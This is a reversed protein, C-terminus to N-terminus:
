DRRAAIYLLALYTKRVAREPREEIRRHLRDLLRERADDDLALIASYTRELAVYEDATYIADWQYRRTAVSRFLGSEELEGAIVADSHGAIEDPKPPADDDAFFPDGDDPLVHVMSVFALKGRADLLEAAKLYRLPSPIWHISSFAVVADFGAREPQWTEFDANVIEVDAFSALKRRAFAALQAGLEVCTVAYGREALPHTAQGTGCGVEVIRAGPSLEALAALDDFVEGPYGPRARDYLEPIRDFTERLV